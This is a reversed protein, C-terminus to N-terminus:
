TEFHGADIANCWISLAPSFCCAHYYAIREAITSISRYASNINTASIPPIQLHWLETCPKQYGLLIISHDFHFTVTNKTFTAIYCFNEPNVGCEVQQM